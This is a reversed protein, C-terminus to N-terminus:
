ASEKSATESEPSRAIPEKTDGPCEEAIAPGRRRTGYRERMWEDAEAIVIRVRRRGIKLHPLGHAILNDIMRVSFSWRAGYGRKDSVPQGATALAALKPDGKATELISSKTTIM